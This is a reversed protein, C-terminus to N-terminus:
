DPPATPRASTTRPPEAAYWMFSWAFTSSVAGVLALLPVTYPLVGVFRGWDGFARPGGGSITALYRAVGALSLGLLGVIAGAVVFGFFNLRLRLALLNLLFAPLAWFKLTAVVITGFSLLAVYLAGIVIIAAHELNASGFRILFALPFAVGVTTLVAILLAVFTAALRALWSVEDLSLRGSSDLPTEQTASRKTHDL